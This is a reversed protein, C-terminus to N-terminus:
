QTESVPLDYLLLYFGWIIELDNLTWLEGSRLHGLTPQTRKFKTVRSIIWGKCRLCIMKILENCFGNAECVTLRITTCLWQKYCDQGEYMSKFYPVFQSYRFLLGKWGLIKVKKLTLISLWILLTFILLGQLDYHPLCNAKKASLSMAEESLVFKSFVSFFAESLDGRRIIADGM